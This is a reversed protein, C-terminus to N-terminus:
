LFMNVFSFTAFLTLLWSSNEVTFGCKGIIPEGVYRVTHGQYKWQKRIFDSFYLGLKSHWGVFVREKWALSFDRKRFGMLKASNWFVQDVKGYKSKTVPASKKRSLLHTSISFFAPMFLAWFSDVHKIECSIISLSTFSWSDNTYTAGM